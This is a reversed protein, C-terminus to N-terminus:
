MIFSLIIRNNLYLRCVCLEKFNILEDVAYFSNDMLFRKLNKRFVETDSTVSQLSTPLYNFGKIGAYHIGEQFVTLHPSPFHLNYGNTTKISYLDAKDM